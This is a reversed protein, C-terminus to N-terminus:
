LRAVVELGDPVLKLVIAELQLVVSADIPDLLLFDSHSASNLQNPFKKKSVLIRYIRIHVTSLHKQSDAVRIKDRELDNRRNVPSVPNGLTQTLHPTRLPIMFLLMVIRCGENGARYWQTDSNSEPKGV